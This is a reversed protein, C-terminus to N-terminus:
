SFQLIPAPGRGSRPPADRPELCRPLSAVLCGYSPGDTGLASVDAEHQWQQRATYGGRCGHRSRCLVSSSSLDSERRRHCLRASIIYKRDGFSQTTLGNPALDRHQPLTETTTYTSTQPEAMMSLLARPFRLTLSAQQLQEYLIAPLFFGLLQPFISADLTSIWPHSPFSTSRVVQVSKSALYDLRSWVLWFELLKWQNDPSKVSPLSQPRLLEFHSKSM